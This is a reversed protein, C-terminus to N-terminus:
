RPKLVSKLEAAFGLRNAIATVYDEPFLEPDSLALDLEDASLGLEAFMDVDGSLGGDDIEDDDLGIEDVVEQAISWDLAAAADSIVFQLDVPSVRVVFFFEDSVSVIGFTGGEGPQQRLVPVLSELSVATNAPLTTANWRGEERWVAVAFDIAKTDVPLNNWTRRDM